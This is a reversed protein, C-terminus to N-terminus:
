KQPTLYISQYSHMMAKVEAFFLGSIATVSGRCIMAPTIPVKEVGPPSLPLQLM